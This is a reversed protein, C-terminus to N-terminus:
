KVEPPDIWTQLKMLPVRHSKEQRAQEGATAATSNGALSLGALAVTVARRTPDNSSTM